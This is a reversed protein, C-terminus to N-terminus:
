EGGPGVRQSVSGGHEEDLLAMLTRTLSGREGAETDRQQAQDHGCPKVFDAKYLPLVDQELVAEIELYAMQTSALM